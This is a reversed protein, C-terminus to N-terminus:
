LANKGNKPFSSLHISLMAFEMWNTIYVICRMHLGRMGFVGFRRAVIYALLLYRPLKTTNPCM